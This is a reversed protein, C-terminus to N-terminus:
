AERRMGKKGGRHNGERREMMREGGDLDSYKGEKKSPGPNAMGEM